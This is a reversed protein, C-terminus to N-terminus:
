QSRRPVNLFPRIAKESSFRMTAERLFALLSEVRDESCGHTAVYVGPVIWIYEGFDGDTKSPDLPGPLASQLAALAGPFDDPLVDALQVVIWNIREKLELETFRELVRTAFLTRDFDLSARDLGDSIQALTEANFLRAKLAFGPQAPIAM